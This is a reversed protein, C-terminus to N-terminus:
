EAYYEGMLEAEQLLLLREGLIIVENGSYKGFEVLSGVSVDIPIREGNVIRGRGVAVVVGKQPKEKAEDPIFLGNQAEDKEPLVRVLVRDVLPRLKLKKEPQLIENAGTTQEAPSEAIEGSVDEAAPGDPHTDVVNSKTPGVIYSTKSVDFSNSLEVAM